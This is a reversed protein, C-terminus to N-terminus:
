DLGTLEIFRYGGEFGPATVYQQCGPQVVDTHAFHVHGCFIAALNTAAKSKLLDHCARTSPLAELVRWKERAEQTWGTPSAMMIPAKWKEMVTPALSKIWIPIHVFLLCPQGSDLEARLFEVQGDSVQYTSNDLTILRVGRVETSGCAPSDDTLGRFRPYYEARTEESWELHPFHWDHNGPTYVTPVGLEDVGAQVIDLAAHAPFHIIDGTLAAADVGRAAAAALTQRFLDWAPVGGPTREQFRKQFRAVSEAAEPDREDGEAMHSDTLHLITLDEELGDIQISAADDDTPVHEFRM